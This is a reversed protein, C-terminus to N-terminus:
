SATDRVSITYTTRYEAADTGTVQVRVDRRADGVDLRCTITTGVKGPLYPCRVEMAQVHHEQLYRKRVDAAVYEGSVGFQEARDDLVVHLRGGSARSTVTVTGRIKVVRGDSLRATRLCRVSAGVV